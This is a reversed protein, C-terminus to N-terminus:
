SERDARVFTERAGQASAMGSGMSRGWHEWVRPGHRGPSTSINGKSWGTFDKDWIEQKRRGAHGPEM